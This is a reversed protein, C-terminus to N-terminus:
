RKKIRVTYSRVLPSSATSDEPRELEIKVRIATVPNKTAVYQAGHERFQDPTPDNFVLIEPVGLYDDTVRSIPIWTDGDDPSIYFRVWGASTSFSSPVYTLADLAVRDVLGGVRIPTSIFISKQVYNVQQVSIDRIGIAWRKGQFYERHQIMTGSSLNQPSFQATVNTVPPVPGKVRQNSTKDTYYLHGVNCAIPNPQELSLRIFRADREEFSWAAAGISVNDAIRASQLDATAGVWLNQPSAPQWDTGNSSTQLLRVLVPTNANNDLGFPVYSLYNVIQVSRLDIELDLKLTGGSPGVAWDVEKGGGDATLAQYTFNLNSAKIRNSESIFYSEYEFWTNPEGDLLGNLLSAPRTQAVFEYLYEGSVPDKTATAPDKIQQNNGSFGNSTDLVKVTADRSLNKLTQDRGLALYSNELISPRNESPVQELDIADDGAWSERFTIVSGDSSSSYLQLNKIKNRVRGNEQKARAIETTVLNHTYVTSARLIDVQRQLLNVDNSALDWFRNMKASLPPEGEVLPDFRLLPKGVTLDYRTLVDRLKDTLEDITQISGKRYDDAIQEILVIAQDYLLTSPAAQTM